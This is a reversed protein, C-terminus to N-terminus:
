DEIPNQLKSSFGFSQWINEAQKSMLFKLYDAAAKKNKSGTIIAAYYQIDEANKFSAIIEVKDSQIASSQYVIGPINGREVLLLTARANNAYAAKAEVESWLNIKQLSNVTYAGLPSIKPNAIAIRHSSLLFSKIGSLANIPVMAKNNKPIALVLRNSALTEVDTAISGTTTLYDIWEKNASIFIDAPAKAAIQRALTGSPGTVITPTTESSQNQWHNNLSNLVSTLSAAAFVNLPPATQSDALSINEPM